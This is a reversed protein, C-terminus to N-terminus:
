RNKIFISRTRIFIARFNGRRNKSFGALKDGLGVSKDTFGALKDTNKIKVTGRDDRNQGLKKSKLQNKGFKLFLLPDTRGFKRVSSVAWQLWGLVL